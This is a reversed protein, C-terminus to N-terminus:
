FLVRYSKPHCKTKFVLGWFFLYNNQWIWIYDRNPHPFPVKALHIYTKGTHTPHLPPPPTAEALDM